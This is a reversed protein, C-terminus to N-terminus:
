CVTPPYAIINRRYGVGYRFSSRRSRIVSVSRSSGMVPIVQADQALRTASFSASRAEVPDRSVTSPGWRARWRPSRDRPRPAPAAPRPRRTRPSRPRAPAPPPPAPRPRRQVVAESLLRSITDASSEAGVRRSEIIRASCNSLQCHSAIDAPWAPRAQPPHRKVPGRVEVGPVPGRGHVRQDRQARQRGPQPRHDRQEEARRSSRSSSSSGASGSRDADSSWSYKSAAATTM